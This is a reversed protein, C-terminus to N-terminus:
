TEWRVSTRKTMLDSSRTSFASGNRRGLRFERGSAWVDHGSRRCRFAARVQQRFYSGCLGYLFFNVVYNTTAIVDTIQKALIYPLDEAPSRESDPDKTFEYLAYSITYPLRLCVFAVCVSVLMLTLQREPQEHHGGTVFVEDSNQKKKKMGSARSTIEVRQNSPTFASLPTSSSRHSRILQVTYVVGFHATNEIGGVGVHDDNGNGNGNHLKRGYQERFSMGKGEMEM